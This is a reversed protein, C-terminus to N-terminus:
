AGSDGEQSRCREWHSRPVQGDRGEKILERPKPHAGGQPNVQREARRDGLTLARRQQWCTHQPSTRDTLGRPDLGVHRPAETEATGQVSPGHDARPHSIGSDGMGQM